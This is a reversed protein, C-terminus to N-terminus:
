YSWFLNKLKFFYFCYIYVGFKVIIKFRDLIKNLICWFFNYAFYTQRVHPFTFINRIETMKKPANKLVKEVSDFDTYFEANKSVWM